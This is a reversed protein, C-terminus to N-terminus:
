GGYGLGKLNATLRVSSIVSRSKLLMAQCSLAIM